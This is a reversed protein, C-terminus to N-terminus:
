SGAEPQPRLSRNRQQGQGGPDVPLVVSHLLLALGVEGEVEPARVAVLVPLPGVDVAAESEGHWLLFPVTTGCILTLIDKSQIQYVYQM